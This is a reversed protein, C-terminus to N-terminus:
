GGSSYSPDVIAQLAVATRLRQAPLINIVEATATGSSVNTTGQGLRQIYSRMTVVGLPQGDKGTPARGWEAVAGTGDSWMVTARLVPLGPSTPAPWNEVTFTIEIANADGRTFNDIAFPGYTGPAYDQAASSFSRPM